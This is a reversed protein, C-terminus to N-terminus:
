AIYKNLIKEINDFDTYPIRILKINNNKCYETKIKDRYQQSKFKENMEEQTINKNFRIPIFHQEGDYEICINKSKIYFDFPLSRTDKCDEFRYETEYDISM